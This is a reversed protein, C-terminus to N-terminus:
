LQQNQVRRLDLRRLAAPHQLRTLKLLLQQM